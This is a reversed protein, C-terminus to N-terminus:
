CQRCFSRFSGLLDAAMFGWSRIFHPLFPYSKGLLKLVPGRFLLPLQHERVLACKPHQTSDLTLHPPRDAGVQVAGVVCDLRHLVGVAHHHPSTERSIKFAYAKVEKRFIHGHIAFAVLLNQLVMQQGEHLYMPHAVEQLISGGAVGGLLDLLKELLLLGHDHVLPPVGRVEVLISFTHFLMFFLSFFAAM